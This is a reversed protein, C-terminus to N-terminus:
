WTQGVGDTGGSALHCKLCAGDISNAYYDGGGNVVVGDIVNTATELIPTKAAGANAAATMWIRTGYRNHPFAPKTTAPDVWDHCSQCGPAVSSFAVATPNQVGDHTAGWNATLGGIVPHGSMTTPNSATSLADQLIMDNNSGTISFASGRNNHCGNRSCIYGTGIAVGDHGVTDNMMPTTVGTIATKVIADAIRTDAADELLKAKISPYVSTGVGHPSNTHCYGLCTSHPSNNVGEASLSVQVPTVPSGAYHCYNCSNGVSTGNLLLTGAADAGHVSHCVACKITTTTYNGHPGTAQAANLSGMRTAASWFVYGSTANVSSTVKGAIDGVIAPTGANKAMATTAFSLVLMAAIAVLLFSKKMTSVGQTTNNSTMEKM